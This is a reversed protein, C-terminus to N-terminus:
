AASSCALEDVHLEGVALLEQEMSALSNDYDSNDTTAERARRGPEKIPGIEFVGTSHGIRLIPDIHALLLVAPVHASSM